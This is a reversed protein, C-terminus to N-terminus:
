PAYEPFRQVVALPLRENATVHFRVSDHSIMVVLLGLDEKVKGFARNAYLGYIHFRGGPVLKLKGGILPYRQRHVFGMGDSEQFFRFEYHELREPVVGLVRVGKWKGYLISRGHFSV